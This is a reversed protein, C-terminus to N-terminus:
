RPTRRRGRGAHRGRRTFREPAEDIVLRDGDVRTSTRAWRGATSRSRSWNSLRRRRARLAGSSATAAACAALARVRTGDPDLDFELEIDDVLFVPPTYDRRQITKAQDNRM